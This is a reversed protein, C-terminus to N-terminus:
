NNADDVGAVLASPQETEHVSYLGSARVTAQVDAPLENWEDPQIDRMPAGPVYATGDGQWRIVVDKAAKSKSM